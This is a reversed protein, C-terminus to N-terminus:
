FKNVCIPCRAPMTLFQKLFLCLQKKNISNQACRQQVAVNQPTMKIAKKERMLLAALLLIKLISNILMLWLSLHPVFHHFETIHFAQM